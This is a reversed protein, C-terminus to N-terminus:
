RGLRHCWGAIKTCDANPCRTTGFTVSRVENEGTVEIVVQEEVVEGDVTVETVTEKITVGEEELESAQM